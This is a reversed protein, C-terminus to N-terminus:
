MEYMYGISGDNMHMTKMKMYTAAQNQESIDSNTTQTILDSNTESFPMDPHGSDQGLIGASHSLNDSTVITNHAVFDDCPDFRDSSVIADNCNNEVISDNLVNKDKSDPHLLYSSQYDM